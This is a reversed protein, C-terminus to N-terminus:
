FRRPKEQKTKKPMARSISTIGSALDPMPRRLDCYVRQVLAFPFQRFSAQPHSRRDSETRDTQPIAFSFGPRSAPRGPNKSSQSTAAACQQISVSCLINVPDCPLGPLLVGQDVPFGKQAGAIAGSVAANVLGGNVADLDANSLEHVDPRELIPRM